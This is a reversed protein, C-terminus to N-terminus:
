RILLNGVGVSLREDGKSVMKPVGGLKELCLIKPQKHKGTAVGKRKKCVLHGNLVM